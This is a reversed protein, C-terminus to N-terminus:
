RGSVLRLHHRRAAQNRAPGYDLGLRLSAAADCLALQLQRVKGVLYQHSWHVEACADSYGYDTLWYLAQLAAQPVPSAGRLWRRMTTPSVDLVSCARKFTLQHVFARLQEVGGVKPPKLM